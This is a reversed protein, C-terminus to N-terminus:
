ENNLTPCQLRWSNNNSQRYGGVNSDTKSEQKMYKPVRNSPVYRNIMTISEQYFSVTSM